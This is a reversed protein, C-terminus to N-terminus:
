MMRGPPKGSRRTLAHYRAQLKALRIQL